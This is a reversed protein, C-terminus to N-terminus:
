IQNYQIANYVIDFDQKSMKNKCYKCTLTSGKTNKPCNESCIRKYFSGDKIIIDERKIIEKATAM